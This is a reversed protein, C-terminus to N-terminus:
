TVLEPKIPTIDNECFVPIFNNNTFYDHIVHRILTSTAWKKMRNITKKGDVLRKKEMQAQREM